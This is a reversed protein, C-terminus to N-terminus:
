YRNERRSSGGGSPRRPRDEKPRAENVLMKRGKVDADHLGQIAAKAESENPMEVFGFGRARGTMRDTVLSVKEVTGYAEFASRLDDETATYALNGVYINVM